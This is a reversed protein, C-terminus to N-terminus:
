TQSKAIGHAPALWLGRDIPNGLCSYQLPTGNGEGPSRGSELISGADGADRANALPNKVVMGGSFNEQVIILQKSDRM